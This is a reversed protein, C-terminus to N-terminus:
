QENRLTNKGYWVPFCIFHGYRCCDRRVSQGNHIPVDLWRTSGCRCIPTAPADEKATTPAPSPDTPSQLWVLLEAKHTTLREVLDPTVASRPSYRLREGCSELRIGRRALDALLEDANM